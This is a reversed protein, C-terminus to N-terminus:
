LAQALRKLRQAAIWADVKPEAAFIDLSRFVAGRDCPFAWVGTPLKCCSRVPSLNTKGKQTIAQVLQLNVALRGEELKVTRNGASDEPYSVKM